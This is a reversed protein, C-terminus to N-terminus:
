VTSDFIQIKDLIENPTLYNILQDIEENERKEPIAVNLIEQYDAELEM